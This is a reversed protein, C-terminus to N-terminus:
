TNKFHLVSAFPRVTERAQLFGEQLLQEGGAHFPISAARDAAAERQLLHQSSDRTLFFQSRPRMGNFLYFLHLVNRTGVGHDRDTRSIICCLSRSRGHCLTLPSSPLMLLPTVSRKPRATHILVLFIGESFLRRPSIQSNKKGEKEGTAKGLCSKEPPSPLLM